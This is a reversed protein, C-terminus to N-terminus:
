AMGLVDTYGLGTHALVNPDKHLLFLVDLSIRARLV